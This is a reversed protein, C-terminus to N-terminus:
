IFEAAIGHFFDFCGGKQMFSSKGSLPLNLDIAYNLVRAFLHFKQQLDFYEEGWQRAFISNNTCLLDINEPMGLEVARQWATTGPIPSFQALRIKVGLGHVV